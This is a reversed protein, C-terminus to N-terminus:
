GSCVRVTRAVRATRHKAGVATAVVSHRGRSLSITTTWIGLVVKHAPAPRKGDVSFHVSLVGGPASAAVTLTQRAPECGGVGPLLWDVAAGTVVQLAARGTRTNPMISPGVTDINKAEQYDSSIM